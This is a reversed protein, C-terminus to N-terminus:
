RKSADVARRIEAVIPQHDASDGEFYLWPYDVKNSEVEIHSVDLSGNIRLSVTPKVASNPGAPEVLIRAVTPALSAVEVRYTCVDRPDLGPKSNVYHYHNKIKPEIASRLQQSPVIFFRSKEVPHDTISPYTIWYSNTKGLRYLRIDFIRFGNNLLVEFKGVCAVGDKRPTSDTPLYVIERVQPVETSGPGPWRAPPSKVAESLTSLFKRRASIKAAVDYSSRHGPFSLFPDADSASLGLNYLILSDDLTVRTYFYVPIENRETSRAFYTAASTVVPHNVRIKPLPCDVSRLLQGEQNKARDFCDFIIKKLFDFQWPDIIEAVEPLRITRQHGSEMVEIVNIKIKERYMVDAHVLLKGGGSIKGSAPRLTLETWASVPGAVANECISANEGGAWSVKTSLVLFIFIWATLLIEALKEEHCPM